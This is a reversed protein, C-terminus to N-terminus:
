CSPSRAIGTTFRITHRALERFSEPRRTAPLSCSGPPAPGHIRGTLSRGVWSTEAAEQLQHPAPANRFRHRAVDDAVAAKQAALVLRMVAVPAQQRFIEAVPPAVDLDNVASSTLGVGSAVPYGLRYAIVPPDM